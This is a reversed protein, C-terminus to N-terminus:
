GTSCRDRVWEAILIAAAALGFVFTAGVLLVVLVVVSTAVTLPATPSSTAMIFWVAFWGGLIFGSFYPM